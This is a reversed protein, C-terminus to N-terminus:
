KTELIENEPTVGAALPGDQGHSGLAATLPISLALSAKHWYFPFSTSAAM